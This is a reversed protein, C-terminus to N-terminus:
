SSWQRGEHSQEQQVGLPLCWPPGRGCPGQELGWRLSGCDRPPTGQGAEELGLDGGAEPGSLGGGAKLCGSSRPMLQSSDTSWVSKQARTACGTCGTSQPCAPARTGSRLTPTAGWAQQAAGTSLPTHGKRGLPAWQPESPLGTLTPAILHTHVRPLGLECVQIHAHCRCVRAQGGLGPVCVQIHGLLDQSLYFSVLDEVSFLLLAHARCPAASLPHLLCLPLRPLAPPRCPQPAPNAPGTAQDLHM